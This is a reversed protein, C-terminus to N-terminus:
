WEYNLQEIKLMCEQCLEFRDEVEVLFVRIFM